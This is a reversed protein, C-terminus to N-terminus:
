TIFGLPGLKQPNVLAMLVRAADARLSSLRNLLLQYVTYVMEPTVRSLSDVYDIPAPLGTFESVAGLGALVEGVDVSEPLAVEVKTAAPFITHRPRYFAVLVDSFPESGAAWRLWDLRWRLGEPAREKFVEYIERYTGAVFYEGEGLVASMLARDSIEPGLGEAVVVDRSFSRKIVGIVPVGRRLAEHILDASRRIAEGVLADGARRRAGFRPVVEGDILVAKPGDVGELWELGRMAHERERVRAFADTDDREPNFYVYLAREPPGGCGRGYPVTAVQVLNLYGGLVELPPSMFGSDVAYYCAPEGKGLPAIRGEGLFRDRLGRLEDLRSLVGSLGKLAEELAHEVLEPEIGVEGAEVLPEPYEGQGRSAM